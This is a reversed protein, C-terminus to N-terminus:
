TEGQVTTRVSVLGWEGDEQQEYLRLTSSKLHLAGRIALLKRTNVDTNDIGGQAWRVVKQVIVIKMKRLSFGKQPFCCFDGLYFFLIFGNVQM